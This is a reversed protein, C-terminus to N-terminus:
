KASRRIIERAVNNQEWMGPVWMDVPWPNVSINVKELQALVDFFEKRWSWNWDSLDWVANDWTASYKAWRAAGWVGSDWVYEFNM